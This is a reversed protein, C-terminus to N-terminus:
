IDKKLEALLEDFNPLADLEAEMERKFKEKQAQKKCKQFRELVEEQSLGISKQIEPDEYLREIERKYVNMLAAQASTLKNFNGFQPVKGIAKARLKFEGAHLKEFAPRRCRRATLEEQRLTVIWWGPDELLKCLKGFQERVADNTAKFPDSDDVANEKTTTHGKALIAAAHGAFDKHQPTVKKLNPPKAKPSLALQSRREAEQELAEFHEWHDRRIPCYTKGLWICISLILVMTAVFTFLFASLSQGPVHSITCTSTNEIM